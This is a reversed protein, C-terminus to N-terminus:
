QWSFILLLINIVYISSCVICFNKQKVYSFYALIASVIVGIIALYSTYLKSWGVSYVLAYFILGYAPNPLFLLSGYRSGFAKTCSIHKGIDCWPKYPKKRYRLEVYLAYLCILLGIIALIRIPLGRM